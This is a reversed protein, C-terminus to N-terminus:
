FLGGFARGFVGPQRQPPLRGANAAATESVSLSAPALINELGASRAGLQLDQLAAAQGLAGLSQQLAQDQRGLQQLGLQSALQQRQQSLGADVNGLQTLGVSSNLLGRRGLENALNQRQQQAGSEFVNFQSEAFSRFRPDTGGLGINRFVDSLGRAQDAGFDAQLFEPNIQALQSRFNSLDGQIDARAAPDGAITSQALPNGFASQLRNAIGPVETLGGSSFAAQARPAASSGM